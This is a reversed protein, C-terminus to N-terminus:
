VNPVTFLKTGDNEKPRAKLKSYLHECHAAHKCKITISKSSWSAAVPEIAECGECYHAFESNLQPKFEQKKSFYNCRGGLIADKSFFTYNRFECRREEPIFYTCENCNM